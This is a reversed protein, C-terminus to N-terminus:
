WSPSGVRRRDRRAACEPFLERLAAKKSSSMPEAFTSRFRVAVADDPSSRPNSPRHEWKSLLVRRAQKEPVPDRCASKAALRDSRRPVLSRAPRRSRKPAPATRIIHEALPKKLAAIFSGVSRANGDGANGGAVDLTSTVHSPPGAQVGVDEQFLWDLNYCPESPSLGMRPTASATDFEHAGLSSQSRPGRFEDEPAWHNNRPANADQAPECLV